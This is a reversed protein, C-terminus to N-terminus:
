EEDTLNHKTKEKEEMPKQQCASFLNGWCMKRNGLMNKIKPFRTEEQLVVVNV